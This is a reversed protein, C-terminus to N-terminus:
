APAHKPSNKLTSQNLGAAVSKQKQATTNWADILLQSNGAVARSKLSRFYYITIGALLAIPLFLYLYLM